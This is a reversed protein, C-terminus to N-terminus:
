MGHDAEQTKTSCKLIAEKKNSPFLERKRFLGFFTALAKKRTPMFYLFFGIRSIWALIGVFQVGYMELIAKKNGFAATQGLGPYSFKGAQKGKLKRAINKGIRSGHKVAWLADKPCVGTFFPRQVYAVNGGVWVNSFGKARLQEDAVIRGDLAFEFPLESKIAMVNQELACIPVITPIMTGDQLIIQSETIEALKQNTLVIISLKNIVNKIYREILRISSETHLILDESPSILYIKYGCSKLVPYHEKLKELYEQLNASIEVAAIGGGAVTFTLYKNREAETKVISAMELSFLIRERCQEVAGANNFDLGWQAIGVVTEEHNYSGIAVVLEDYSLKYVSSIGSMKYLVENTTQKIGVVKGEIYQAKSMVEHYPIKHFDLSLSGSLFEGFFGHFSHYNTDSLLVIEAEDKDLFSGAYKEIFKYCWVSTYGCGLLVIRKKM